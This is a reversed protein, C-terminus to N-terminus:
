HEDDVSTNSSGKIKFFFLNENPLVSTLPFAM